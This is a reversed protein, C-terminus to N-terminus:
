FSKNAIEAALEKYTKLNAANVLRDGYIRETEHIWLLVLNDPEKIAELKGQLM